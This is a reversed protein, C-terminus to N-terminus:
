NMDGLSVTADDVGFYSTIATYGQQGQGLSHLQNTELILSSAWSDLDGILKTLRDDRAILLGKIRGSSLDIAQSNDSFKVLSVVNGNVDPKEEYILGRSQSYQILPDNGIFVNVAGGEVERTSIGILQSLEKLLADRQDRLAASSGTRGAETAVVQGNLTAIQTALSNAREAQFQVQSDLGAQINFLEGRIDRIFNSLGQGEILVNSRHTSNSPETQLSSFTAFFRSLRSSLDSDTLENFTAEVRTMALQQVLFSEADSTAGRIRGNLADDVLRSIETITVGTGTYKGPAVENYQTPMLTVRQRSYSPTAANAMNNGVVSLAVQSAMIASRGIQLAGNILPM